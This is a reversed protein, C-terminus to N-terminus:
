RAHSAPLRNRSHAHPTALPRTSVRPFTGVLPAWSASPSPARLASPSPTSLALGSPLSLSLSLSLSLYISLSLLPHAPPPTQGTPGFPRPPPNM